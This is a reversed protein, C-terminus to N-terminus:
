FGAQFGVMVARGMIPARDKIFSTHLAGHEDLLNTAKLFVNLKATSDLVDYDAHLNLLSYGGTDTELPANDNQALVSTFDIGSNFRGYQYDLGTGIRAP